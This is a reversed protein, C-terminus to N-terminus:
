RARTSNECFPKTSRSKPCWRHGNEPFKEVRTCIRISFIVFNIWTNFAYFHCCLPRAFFPALFLSNKSRFIRVHSGSGFGFKGIKTKFRFYASCLVKQVVCKWWMMICQINQLIRNGIKTKNKFLVFRPQCWSWNIECITTASPQMRFIRVDIPKLVSSLFLCVHVM